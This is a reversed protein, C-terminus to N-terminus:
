LLNLSLGSLEKSVEELLHDVAHHSQATLLIRSSGDERIRRGVLERVLRTKGVGPPGQLLFLPM